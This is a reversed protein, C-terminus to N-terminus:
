TGPIGPPRAASRPMPSAVTELLAANLEISVQAKQTAYFAEQAKQKKERGLRYAIGDRVEEISKVASPRIEMAKILYLGEITAIVPSIDGPKELAFLGQAVSAEGGGAPKGSSLWGMMGGRYRTAQDESHKQALIGFGNPVPGQKQDRIAEQRVGKMSRQLEMIKQDSATAPVRKFIVAGLRQEPIRFEDLHGHYYADIEATTVTPAPQNVLQDDQFKRIIMRKLTAVIEANTEYGEAKARQYLMETRVLGDLLM